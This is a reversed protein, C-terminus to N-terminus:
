FDCRPAERKKKALEAQHHNRCSTHLYRDDFPDIEMDVLKTLEPDHHVLEGVIKKPLCQECFPHEKRFSLSKQRWKWSSYFKKKWNEKEATLQEFRGHDHAQCYGRGTTALAPCGSKGCMKSAANM